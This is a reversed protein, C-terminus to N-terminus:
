SLARDLAFTRGTLNRHLRQWFHAAFVLQIIITFFTASPHNYARGYFYNETLTSVYWGAVRGLMVPLLLGVLITVLFASVFNTSRLSFYLGIVPLTLFTNGFFLIEGFAVRGGPVSSDGLSFINAFYLWIGLLLAMAPLFQGWLGRVRGGIIHRVGVPSVLLLELVGTERERRLSGAASFAITGVLLWAMFSQLSGFHQLYVGSNSMVASYLSIMVAFWSWTVLRGSWTRQELWGIPNRELKHRMMRRFFTLWIIPTCFTREWWLIRASPPEERWTQDVRRAALLAVFVFLLMSLAFMQGLILFWFQVVGGPIRVFYNSWGSNWFNIGGAGTSLIAGEILQGLGFRFGNSYTSAPLNGRINFWFIFSLLCGFVIAFFMSNIEALVLARTWRKASSSALLGATLALLVACLELTFATVVDLWGVGGLLIPIALIPVAALWLTMSRLAHVLSKSVVISRATLPTLFLLGLTGERRERSLCDATLAPVMVWITLLITSHLIAFLRAGLKAPPVHSDWILSACVLFAAAAGMVRLWYNFPRRAESRLERKIVPLFIM